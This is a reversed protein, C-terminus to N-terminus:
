LCLSHVADCVKHCSWLIFRNPQESTFFTRKENCALYLSGERNVTQEILETRKEKIINHPLTTNLSSSDYTSVCFKIDHNRIATLCSTLIISLETTTYSSSNAIIRSMYPIKHLKPLWYLTPHKSHDENVFVDFKAAMKCRHIDAVSREDLM